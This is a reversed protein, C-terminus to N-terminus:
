AALLHDRWAGPTTGTMARFHRTLHAQDHFGSAIAVEALPLDAQTLQLLARDIRRRLRYRSVSCGYAARFCRTLHTASVGFQLALEAVTTPEDPTDDIRERVQKIFAGPSQGSAPGTERLGDLLLLCAERLRDVADTAANARQMEVLASVTEALASGPVRRGSAWRWPPIPWADPDDALSELDISAM